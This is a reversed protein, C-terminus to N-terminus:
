KMLATLINLLETGNLSTDATTQQVPQQPQGFLAGLLSMPTQQQQVPKVQQVPQQPQGFLTGLLNAVTAQQQQQQIQQQQQQQVTYQNGAFMTLLDGLDFVDDAKDMSTAANTAAALGALLAPAISGLTKAVDATNVGTEASLARVVKDNDDGLIHGIIKGGDVEDVEDIQEAMTKTVKHQTLAGLLSLAGSQSSANKTMYKILIPLATIILKTVLEQSLGTKKSVSNVSQTSVLTKLLLQLLNM